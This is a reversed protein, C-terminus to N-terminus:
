KSGVRNPRFCLARGSKTTSPASIPSATMSTFSQLRSRIAVVLGIDAGLVVFDPRASQKRNFLTPEFYVTHTEPLYRKLANFLKREGPRCGDPAHPYNMRAM